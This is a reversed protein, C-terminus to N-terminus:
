LYARCFSIKSPPVFVPQSERPKYQAPLSSYPRTGLRDKM